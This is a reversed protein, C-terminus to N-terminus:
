LSEGAAVPNEHHNGRYAGWYLFVHNGALTVPITPLPRAARGSLVEGSPLFRDGHCPCVLVQELPNWTLECPAFTCTAELAVVRDRSLRILMVPVERIHIMRALGVPIRDVPGADVVAGPTLTEPPVALFKEWTWLGFLVWVGAVVRSLWWSLDRSRDSM